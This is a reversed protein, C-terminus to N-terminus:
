PVGKGYLLILLVSNLLLLVSTHISKYALCIFQYFRGM